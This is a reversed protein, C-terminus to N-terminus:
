KLIVIVGRRGSVRKLSFTDTIRPVLIKFNGKFAAWCGCPVLKWCCTVIDSGKYKAKWDIISWFWKCFLDGPCSATTLDTTELFISTGYFVVMIMSLLNSLFCNVCLWSHLTCCVTIVSINAIIRSTLSRAFIHQTHTTWSSLKGNVDECYM